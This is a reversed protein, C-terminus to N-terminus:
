VLRLLTRSSFIPSICCWIHIYLILTNAKGSDNYCSIHLCLWPLMVSKSHLAHVAKIQVDTCHAHHVPAVATHQQFIPTDQSLQSNKYTTVRYIMKADRCNLLHLCWIELVHHVNGILQIFLKAGGDGWTTWFFLIGVVAAGNWIKKMTVHKQNNGSRAQWPTEVFIHM